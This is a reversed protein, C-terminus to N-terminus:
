LEDKPEYEIRKWGFELPRDWTTEGTKTNHFYILNDHEESEIEEWDSPEPREWQPTGDKSVYFLEGTERWVHPVNGPDTWTVEDSVTNWFYWQPTKAASVVVVCIFLLLLIPSM